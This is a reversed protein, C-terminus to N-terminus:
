FPEIQKISCDTTDFERFIFQVFVPPLDMSTLFLLM